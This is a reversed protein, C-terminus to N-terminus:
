TIVEVFPRHFLRPSQRLCYCFYFRVSLLLHFQVATCLQSQTHTSSICINIYQYMICIHMKYAYHQKAKQKTAEIGNKEDISYGKLIKNNLM